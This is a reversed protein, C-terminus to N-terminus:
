PKRGEGGGGGCVWVGKKPLPLPPPPIHFTACRIRGAHVWEGMWNYSRRCEDYVYM